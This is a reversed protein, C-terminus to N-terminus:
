QPVAVMARGQQRLRIATTDAAHDGDQADDDAISCHQGGTRAATDHKLRQGHRFRVKTSLKNGNAGGEDRARKTMDHSEVSPQFGSSVLRRTL